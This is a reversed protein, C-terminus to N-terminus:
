EQRRLRSFRSNKSKFSLVFGTVLLAYGTYTINRGAVDRNVSLCNSPDRNCPLNQAQGTMLFVSIILGVWIFHILSFFM